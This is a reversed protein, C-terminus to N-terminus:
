WQQKPLCNKKGEETVKPQDFRDMVAEPIGQYRASKLNQIETKQGLQQGYKKQVLRINCYKITWRKKSGLISSGKRHNRNYNRWYRGNCSKYKDAIKVMIELAVQQADDIQQLPKKTQKRSPLDSDM